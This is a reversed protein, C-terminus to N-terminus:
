RNVRLNMFFYFHLLFVVVDKSKLICSHSPKKTTRSLPSEPANEPMNCRISLLMRVLWRCHWAIRIIFDIDAKKWGCAWVELNVLYPTTLSTNCSPFSLWVSCTYLISDVSSLKYSNEYDWWFRCISMTIRWEMNCECDATRTRRSLQGYLQCTVSELNNAFFLDASITNSNMRPSDNIWRIPPGSCFFILYILRVIATISFLLPLGPKLLTFNLHIYTPPTAVKNAHTETCWAHMHQYPVNKTIDLWTNVM